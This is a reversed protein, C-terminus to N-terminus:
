WDDTTTTMGLKLSAILQEIKSKSEKLYKIMMGRGLKKGSKYYDYYYQLDISTRNGNNDLYVIDSFNYKYKFDKISVRFTFLVDQDKLISFRGTGKLEGLEKDDTSTVYKENKFSNIVWLKARKYLQEKNVTDVLIIEEFFIKGDKEPLTIAESQGHVIFSSLLCLTFFILKM